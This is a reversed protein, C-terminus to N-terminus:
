KGNRETTGVRPTCLAPPPAGESTFRDEELARHFGSEAKELTRTQEIRGAKGVASDTLQTLM